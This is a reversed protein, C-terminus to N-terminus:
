AASSVAKYFTCQARMRLLDKRRLESKSAVSADGPGAENNERVAPESPDGDELNTKSRRIRILVIRGINAHKSPRRLLLRRCNTDYRELTERVKSIDRRGELAPTSSTDNEDMMDDSLTPSASLDFFSFSHTFFSPDRHM